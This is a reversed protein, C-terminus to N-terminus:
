EGLEDINVGKVNVPCLFKIRGFNRRGVEFGEVFCNGEKDVLDDLQQVSPKVFYSDRRSILGCISGPKRPPPSCEVSEDSSSSSKRELFACDGAGGDGGGYFTSGAELLSVSSSGFHSGLRNDDDSDDDDKEQGPKRGSKPPLLFRVRRNGLLGGSSSSCAIQTAGEPTLSDKSNKGSILETSIRALSPSSGSRSGPSMWGLSEELSQLNLKKM